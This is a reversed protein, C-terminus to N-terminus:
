QKTGHTVSEFLRHFAAARRAIEAPPTGPPGFLGGCVALWDAGAAILAAGNDLTIGGIAVVVLGTRRAAGLDAPTARRAGPKTASPYFAGLAVYDVGADRARALRERDNYCSWGIIATPGVLRRAVAPEPDDSGLHVGAAGIEAALHPDDNVILPVRHAACLRQLYKAQRRRTQLTATKARYQVQRVGGALAAEVAESLAKEPWGDPTIAYLGGRRLAPLNWQDPSHKSLSM